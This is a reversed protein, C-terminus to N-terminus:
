PAVDVHLAVPLPQEVACTVPSCAASSAVLARLREASIGSAGIRV